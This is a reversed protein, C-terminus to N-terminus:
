SKYYQNRGLAKAKYLAKDAQSILEDLTKLNNNEKDNVTFTSFGISVTVYPSVSKNGAEARLDRINDILAEAMYEFDEPNQNTCCIMFEEGGYRCVIDQKRTFTTFITQAIDHLLIDGAQHGFTDNYNKFFDIDLMYVCFPQDIRKCMEYISTARQYGANKNLIGTLADFTCLAGLETMLSLTRGQLHVSAVIGILICIVTYLCYMFDADFYIVLFLNLVIPATFIYMVRRFDVVPLSAILLFAVFMNYPIRNTFIDMYYFPSMLLPFIIWLLMYLRRRFTVSVKQSTNTLGIVILSVFGVILILIIMYLLRSDNYYYPNLLNTLEFLVLIAYLIFLRNLNWDCIAEDISKSEFEKWFKRKNM